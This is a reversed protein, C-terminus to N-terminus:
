CFFIPNQSVPLSFVYNKYYRCRNEQLRFSEHNDPFPEIPETPNEVIIMSYSAQLLKPMNELELDFM